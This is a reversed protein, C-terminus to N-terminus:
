AGAASCGPASQSFTHNYYNLCFCPWARHSSAQPWHFGLSAPPLQKPGQALYAPQPLGWRRSFGLGQGGRGPGSM